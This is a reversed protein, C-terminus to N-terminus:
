AAHRGGCSGDGDVEVFTHEVARMAAVAAKITHAVALNFLECAVMGDDALADAHAQHRGITGASIGVTRCEAAAEALIRDGGISRIVM